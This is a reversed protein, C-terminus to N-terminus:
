MSRFIEFRYEQTANPYKVKDVKEEAMKLPRTYVQFPFYLAQYVLMQEKTETHQAITLVQYLYKYHSKEEESAFDRKFHCIIQGPKFKSEM